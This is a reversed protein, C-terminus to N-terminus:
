RGNLLRSPLRPCSSARTRAERRARSSISASSSAKAAACGAAACDTSRSLSVSSSNRSMELGSIAAAPSSGLRDVDDQEVVRLDVGEDGGALRDIDLGPRSIAASLTLWSCPTMACSSPWTAPPWTMRMCSRRWAFRGPMLMAVQHEARQRHRGAGAVGSHPDHHGPWRAAIPLKRAKVRSGPFSPRNRGAGFIEDAAPILPLPLM